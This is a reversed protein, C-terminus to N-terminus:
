EFTEITRKAAKKAEHRALASIGVWIILSSLISLSIGLFGRPRFPMTFSRGPEIVWIAVLFYALELGGFVLIAAKIRTEQDSKWLIKLWGAIEICAGFRMFLAFLFAALTFLLSM